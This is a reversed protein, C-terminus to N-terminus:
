DMGWGYKDGPRYKFSKPYRDGTDAMAAARRRPSAWCDFHQTDSYGLWSCGHRAMIQRPRNGPRFLAPHKVSRRLYARNPYVGRPSIYPNEWPNIDISRGSAHPSLVHPERGVVYRCNFASTNDAAMSRYDNAGKWRSPGFDDVLRMQRIPYRIRYFDQFIGRVNRAISAHVVMEGRYRYGDFGWYNTTVYRLSSRPLCGRSWTRGRMRKFVSSPIHQIRVNAGRGLPAPRDPRRHKRIPEPLSRPRRVPRKAPSTQVRATSSYGALAETDGPFRVRYLTSKWPRDIADATGEPSTSAATLRQWRGKWPKFEFVVGAAWPPGTRLALLTQVRVPSESRVRKSATGVAVDVPASIVDVSVSASATPYEPSESTVTFTTAGTRTAQWMATGVGAADTLFQGYPTTGRNDTVAVSVPLDPLSSIDLRVQQGVAPTATDVTVSLPPATTEASPSPEAAVPAVVMGTLVVAACFSSFYTM